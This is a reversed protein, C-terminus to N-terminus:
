VCREIMTIETVKEVWVEAGPYLRAIWTAASAAASDTSELTPFGSSFPCPGLASLDYRTFTGDKEEFPESLTGPSYQTMVRFSVKTRESM